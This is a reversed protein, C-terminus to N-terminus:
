KTTGTTPTRSGTKISQASGVVSQRCSGKLLEYVLAVPLGVVNFYCGEIRTVFKSALGQIGYAGAKDLPEGSSVYESIEQEGLRRFTVLTVSPRLTEIRDPARVLCVGTVVRHTVGSLLRLMRAADDPGAPKGLVEGDVIVVTDAGLVLTEPPASAAVELAKERAARLAFEEGSEGARRKEEIGSPRVEFDFGAARLLERRRPSASALILRLNASRM